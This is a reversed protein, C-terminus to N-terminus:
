FSSGWVRVNVPAVRPGQDTAAYQVNTDHLGRGGQARSLHKEVGLMRLRDTTLVAFESVESRVDLFYSERPAGRSTRRKM